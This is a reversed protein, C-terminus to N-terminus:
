AAKQIDFIWYRGQDEPDNGAPRWTTGVGLKPHQLRHTRAPLPVLAKALKVRWRSGLTPDLEDLGLGQSFPLVYGLMDVYTAGGNPSYSITDALRADVSADM